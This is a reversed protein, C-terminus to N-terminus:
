EASNGPHVSQPGRVKAGTKSRVRISKLTDSKEHTASAKFGLVYSEHIRSLFQNLYPALEVPSMSGNYLSEGGTAEAIQSLYSQGSFSARGGRMGVDGYYLPYVAIGAREADEQASQVYPSDQNMVSPRGNYPDVGNTLMLVFRAAHQDSPWHKAFESLCFYPSASIGASSLPIRLQSAVAEHNTSFGGEQRVTGNQMYGVLVRAGAPLTNIFTDLDRLQTAISSRLGDDILIAIEAGQPTVPRVSDIPTNHGNVDLTLTNVDVPANGKGEVRILASTPVPGEQIEQALMPLLGSAAFACAACTLQFLRRSM